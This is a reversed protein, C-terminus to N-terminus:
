ANQPPAQVSTSLLLEFQPAHPLTHPLPVGTHLAPTHVADTTNVSLKVEPAVEVDCHVSQFVNRPLSVPVYVLMVTDPVFSVVPRVQVPASAFVSQWASWLPVVTAAVDHPPYVQSIANVHAAPGGFGTSSDTSPVSQAHSVVPYSTLGHMPLAFQPPTFVAVQVAGVCVIVTLQWHCSTTASM